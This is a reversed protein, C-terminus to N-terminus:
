EVEQKSVEETEKNVAPKTKQKPKKNPSLVMVMQRGEMKPFQEVVGHEELDAEVRKLLAMGLQQHAIERGRFRLTVKTKDGDALFRILNRLKVNYDNDDTGPRFKVEKVQVNKQKTKAEHLKKSQAYKFKGYDMLRCVPPNAKPAIEVLDTELDYAKAIAESLSVIGLPEAEM